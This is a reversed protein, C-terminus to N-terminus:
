DSAAMRITAMTARYPKLGLAFLLVALLTGACLAILVSYHLMQGGPSVRDSLWGVALPGLGMGLLNIVFLYLASAQARMGAPVLQQVAAATVGFAMSLGIMLPVLFVAAWAGTGAAPYLVAGPLMVLAGALAVRNNADVYGRRHYRDAWRGGFIAGASGTLAVLTGCIVGTQAPAWGHRRAFLEVMWQSNAYGAFTLSAMGLFLTGFTKWHAKFWCNVERLPLATAGKTGGQRERVHSGRRPMERVTALLGACLVGPLGVVFFVLQWPRVSGFWPLTVMSDSGVFGLLLGLCVLALGSGLYIGLSYVSIATARREPPFYDAILSYAAPSLTAEGVGVGMRCLLLQWFQRALGCGATMVSWSVFGAAILARRSRTDAWRGVPIGFFTYFLAFATGSLLGVQSDSLNFDRKIPGIMMSVIQRDVFSFFYALTLVGVVYWAYGPPPYSPASAAAKEAADEPCRTVPMM